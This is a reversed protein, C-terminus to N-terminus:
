IFMRQLLYTRQMEYKDLLTKNAMIKEEYAHLLKTIM